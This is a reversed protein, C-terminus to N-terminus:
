RKRKAMSLRSRKLEGELYKMDLKGKMVELISRADELDIPGGALCKLVILDEPSIVPVQHGLFQLSTSREFIGQPMNRIGLVIDVSEADYSDLSEIRIVGRLPDQEDSKRLMAQFGAKQLESLLKHALEARVDVLFDIDRTSRVMGWAAVAHGGALVFPIDLRKFIKLIKALDAKNV